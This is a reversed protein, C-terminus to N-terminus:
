TEPLPSCPRIYIRWLPSDPYLHHAVSPAPSPSRRRCDEEREREKQREVATSRPSSPLALACLKICRGSSTVLLLRRCKHLQIKPRESSSAACHPPLLGVRSGHPQPNHQCSPGVWYLCLTHFTPASHPHIVPRAASPTPGCTPATPLIPQAPLALSIPRPPYIRGV